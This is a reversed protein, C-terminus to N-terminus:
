EGKSIARLELQLVDIDKKIEYIRQMVAEKDGEYIDRAYRKNAVVPMGRALDTTVTWAVPPTSKKDSEVGVEATRIGMIKLEVCVKTFEMRYEKEANALKRTLDPLKNITKRLEAKRDHLEGATEQMSADYPM